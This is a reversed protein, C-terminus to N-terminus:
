FHTKSIRRLLFGFLGMRLKGNTDIMAPFLRRSCSRWTEKRLPCSIYQNDSENIASEFGIPIGYELSLVSLFQDLNDAEINVDQFVMNRLVSVDRRDELTPLTRQGSLHAFLTLIAVILVSNRFM